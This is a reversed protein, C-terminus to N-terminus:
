PANAIWEKMYEESGSLYHVIGLHRSDGHELMIKVVVRIARGDPGEVTAVFTEGPAGPADANIVFGRNTAGITTATFGNDFRVPMRLKVGGAGGIREKSGRKGGGGIGGGKVPEPDTAPSAVTKKSSELLADTQAKALQSRLQDREETVSKLQQALQGSQLLSDSQTFIKDELERTSKEMAAARSQAEALAKELGAVKATLDEVNGLQNKVPADQPSEEKPAFKEAMSKEVVDMQNAMSYMMVFFGFLLTMMDAYSVLWKEDPHPIEEGSQLLDGLEEVSM